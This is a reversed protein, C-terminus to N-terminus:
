RVSVPQVSDLSQSGLLVFCFATYRKIYVFLLSCALGSDTVLAYVFCTDFCSRLRHISKAIGFTFAYSTAMSEFGRKFRIRSGNLYAGYPHFLALAHNINVYCNNDYSIHIINTVRPVHGSSSIMKGSIWIGMGWGM